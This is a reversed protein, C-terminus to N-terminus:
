PFCLELGGSVNISQGNVAAAADSLLFAAVAAVEEPTGVRGLPTKPEIMARFYNAGEDGMSRAVSGSWILGPQLTNVRIPTGSAEWKTAYGRSLGIVAAKAASYASGGALSRIGGVSSINVVAGRGTALLDTMAQMGLRVGGCSIELVSNLDDISLNAIPRNLTRGANNVLGNLTGREAAIMGAAKAWGAQDTVDLPVIMGDGGAERVLALTEEALPMQRGAVGVWAGLRGMTIAMTRGIGSTAGTVLVSKGALDAAGAHADSLRLETGAMFASREDTLMLLAQAISEPKAQAACFLRNSRLRIGAAHADLLASGCMMRISEMTAMAVPAAGAETPLRGLTLLIGTGQTAFLPLAHKAGLWAARIMPSPDDLGDGDPLATALLDVPRGIGALVNDLSDWTAAEAADGEMAIVQWGAGHLADIATRGLASLPNAVLAVGAGSM